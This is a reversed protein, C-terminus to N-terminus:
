DVLGQELAYRILEANNRMGMKVLVRRRYTSITKADLNLEHAIDSVQRGSAILRTVQLERPSLRQYPNAPRGRDVSLALQEALTPGVYKGGHHIRRIADVLEQPRSGKTLYGDAGERMVGVALQDEPHVSLVLVGIELGLGRVERVVELGGRGPMGLDLIAVDVGTKRLKDLADTSNDAEAVIRIDDTENLITKLGERVVTHDDAILVRIMAVGFGSAVRPELSTTPSTM